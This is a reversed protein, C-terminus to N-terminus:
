KGDPGAWGAMCVLVQKFSRPIVTSWQFPFQGPSLEMSLIHFITLLFILSVGSDVISVLQFVSDFCGLHGPCRLLVVHEEMGHKM